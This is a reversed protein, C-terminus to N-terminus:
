YATEGGFKGDRLLQDFAPRPIKLLKGVRFSPVQKLHCADYMTKVDVDAKDAAEKVSYPKESM